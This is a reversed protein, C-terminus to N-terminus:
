AISQRNALVFAVTRGGLVAPWLDPWAWGPAAAWLALVPLPLGFLLWLLALFLRAGKQPDPRLQPRSDARGTGNRPTM